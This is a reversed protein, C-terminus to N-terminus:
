PTRFLTVDINFQGQATMMVEPVSFLVREIIGDFLFYGKGEKRLAWKQAAAFCCLVQYVQCNPQITQLWQAYRLGDVALGFTEPPYYYLGDRDEFVDVEAPHLAGVMDGTLTFLNILRGGLEFGMMQGAYKTPATLPLLGYYRPRTHRSFGAEVRVPKDSRVCFMM